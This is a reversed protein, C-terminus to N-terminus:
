ANRIGYWTGTTAGNQWPGQKKVSNIGKKSVTGMFMLGLDEADTGPSTVTAAVTNGDGLWVGTDTYGASTYDVSWSGDSNFTM